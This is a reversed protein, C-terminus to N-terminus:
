AKFILILYFISGLLGPRIDFDGRARSWEWWCGVFRCTIEALFQHLNLGTSPFISSLGVKRKVINNTSNLEWVILHRSLKKRWIAMAWMWFCREGENWRGGKKSEKEWYAVHSRPYLLTHQDIHIKSVLMFSKQGLWAFCSSSVLGNIEQVSIESWFSSVYYCQSHTCATVSCKWKWPLLPTESNRLM